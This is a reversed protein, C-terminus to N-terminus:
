CMGFVGRGIPTPSLFHRRLGGCGFWINQTYNVHMYIIIGNPKPWFYNRVKLNQTSTGCAVGVRFAGLVVFIVVCLVSKFEYVAMRRALPLITTLLM